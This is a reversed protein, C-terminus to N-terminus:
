PTLEWSKWKGHRGGAAEVGGDHVTVRQKWLGWSVRRYTGQNTLFTLVTTVLYTMDETNNRM